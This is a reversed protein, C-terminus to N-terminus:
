AGSYMPAVPPTMGAAVKELAVRINERAFGVFRSPTRHRQDAAINALIDGGHWFVSSLAPGVTKTLWRVVRTAAALETADKVKKFTPIREAAAGTQCERAIRELFPYAGAFFDAPRTLTDLDVVRSSSRFEVEYRIWPDNEEHGFQEDGKEYARFVKGTMRQGVQFTRSHGSTWAGHETQSPRKGRVDFEGSTWASQVDRIDHGQFVDLALDVRTIWGGAQELWDRVKRWQYPRIHLCAQGFLNVHVTSAQAQSKGGALVYGVVAGEHRLACRVEYFDMGREADQDAEFLGLMQALMRAGHRAAGVASNMCVSSDIARTAQILERDARSMSDMAEADLAPLTEPCLIADLPVTFRLWDLRVNEQSEQRAQELTWKIRHGALVPRESVRQSVKM